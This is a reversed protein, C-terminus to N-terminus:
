RTKFLFSYSGKTNLLTHPLSISLLFSILAVGYINSANKIFYPNSQMLAYILFLTLLTLSLLPILLGKPKELSGLPYIKKQIGFRFIVPLAHFVTFYISFGNFFDFLTMSATIGLAHTFSKLASKNLMLESSIMLILSLATFTVPFQRLFSVSELTLFMYVIELARDLELMVIFLVLGLGWLTKLAKGGITEKKRQFASRFAEDGFHFVSLLFLSSFSVVPAFTLFLFALAFLLTYITLNSLLGRSSTKNLLYFDLAGHPIGILLWATFSFWRWADQYPLLDVEFL